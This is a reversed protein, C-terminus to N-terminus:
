RSIRQTKTAFNNTEYLGGQKEVWVLAYQNRTKIFAVGETCRFMEQLREPSLGRLLAVDEESYADSAAYDDILDYVTDGIAYPLGFEDLVQELTEVTELPDIVFADIWEQPTVGDIEANNRITEGDCYTITKNDINIDVNYDRDIYIEVNFGKKAIKIMKM